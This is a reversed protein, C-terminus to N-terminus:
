SILTLPIIGLLPGWLRQLGGLFAMIVVVFSVLPNFAFNPNIFGFRPAMLAGTLTMFVASVIFIGSGIMSGVVVASADTLGLGRVLSTAEKPATNM